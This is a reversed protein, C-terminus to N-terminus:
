SPSSQAPSGSGGAARTADPSESSEARGDAAPASGTYPGPCPTDPGAPTDRVKQPRGIVSRCVSVGHWSDDVTAAPQTLADLMEFLHEGAIRWSLLSGLQLSFQGFGTGLQM